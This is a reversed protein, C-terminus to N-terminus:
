AAKRFYEAVTNQRSALISPRKSESSTPSHTSWDTLANYVAWMNSGLRPKYTHNWKDYIYNLNNNKRPMNELASTPNSSLKLEELATNSKLAEAFTAFAVEDTVKTKHWVSWQERETHFLELARNIVRSGADVNLNHTHRSKYLCVEGSTFVQLNTCASQIAACSILFPWTSDFSTHALLSLTASDGDPTKYKYEPLNYNVFTRKGDHSTRITEEINKLNFDSRLLINRCADIMKSPAIPQYRDGHVGLESGTDTRYISSKSSYLTGNPTDYMLPATAIDFGAEGYGGDFFSSQDMFMNVINNM